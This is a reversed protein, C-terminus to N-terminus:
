TPAASVCDINKADVIVCRSTRVSVRVSVVRCSVVRCSVVRCSVVRCSVVRCSVVRCSVVRCSWSVVRCSVVRCSVVRCSVVRCSVVRCSVVGGVVLVVGGVWGCRSSWTKNLHQLQQTGRIRRDASRARMRWFDDTNSPNQKGDRLRCPEQGDRRLAGRQERPLWIGRCLVRLRAFGEARRVCCRARERPASSSRQAVPHSVFRLGQTVMM